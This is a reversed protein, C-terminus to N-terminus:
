NSKLDYFTVVECWQIKKNLSMRKMYTHSSYFILFINQNKDKVKKNTQKSDEKHRWMLALHELSVNLCFVIIRAYNSALVNPVPAAHSRYCSRACFEFNNWPTFSSSNGCNKKMRPILTQYLVQYLYFHLSVLLSHLRRLFYNTAWNIHNKWIKIITRNLEKGLTM